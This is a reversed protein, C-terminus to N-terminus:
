DAGRRLAAGFRTQFAGSTTPYGPGFAIGGSYLNGAPDHTATFGWNDATSGTFSSFIVTPDITLAQKHDYAGLLFRVTSGALVYRCSVPQRQGQANTQWAQPALETVRGVTTAILLNGTAPDLALGAPGAYRLAVRGADAGPALDFDYELQQQGNEYVTAGIGPWLGAYRVRRFSGVGRAWQRPDSGRLYNRVEGTPAEAVPRAQRSAGEFHVSYAHAALEGSPSAPPVRREDAAPAEGHRHLAAPDVLLYTLAANELFLRGGPIAAAYRARADWQGKNEIFELTAAEPAARLAPRPAAALPLALLWTSLWYLHNM